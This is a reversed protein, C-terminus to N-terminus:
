KEPPLPANRQIKLVTVSSNVLRIAGEMQAITTAGAPPQVRNHHPIVKSLNPNWSIKKALM